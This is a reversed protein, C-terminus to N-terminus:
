AEEEELEAFWFDKLSSHNEREFELDKALEIAEESSRARIHQFDRMGQYVQTVTYKKM